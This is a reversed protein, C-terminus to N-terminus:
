LSVFEHVRAFTRDTIPCDVVTSDFHGHCSFLDRNTTILTHLLRLFIWRLVRPNLLQLNSLIKSAPAPHLLLTLLLTCVPPRGRVREQM